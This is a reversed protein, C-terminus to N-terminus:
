WLYNGPSVYQSFTSAMDRTIAAQRQAAEFKSELGGLLSLIAGKWRAEQRREDYAGGLLYTNDALNQFAAEFQGWTSESGERLATQQSTSTDTLFQSTTQIESKFDLLMKVMPDSM